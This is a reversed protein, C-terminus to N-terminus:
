FGSWGVLERYIEATQRAIEHPALPRLHDGDTRSPLDGVGELAALLSEPGLEDYLYLWERGVMRQLTPAAGTCPMYVRRDFSLGLLATGSNLIEKYPLVVLNASRM